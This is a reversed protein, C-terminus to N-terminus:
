KIPAPVQPIKSESAYLIHAEALSTLETQGDLYPKQSSLRQHNLSPLTSLYRDLITLKQSFVRFEPINRLGNGTQIVHRLKSHGKFAM